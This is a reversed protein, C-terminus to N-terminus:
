DQSTLPLPLIEQRAKYIAAKALIAPVYLMTEKYAPIRAGHKAVAGRGANYASLALVWDGQYQTLLDKLHRIGIDLNRTPDYLEQPRQMGYRAATAPMLQMLGRAGKPSLAQSNFNSEVEILAQVLAVDVGHQNSAQTISAILSPAIQRNLRESSLHQVSTQGVTDPKISPHQVVFATRYRDDVAQTSWVVQGQADTYSYIELALSPACAGFVIAHGVLLRSLWVGYARHLCLSVM